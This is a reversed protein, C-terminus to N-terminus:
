LNLEMISHRLSNRRAGLLRPTPVALSGEKGDSDADDSDEEEDYDEGDDDEDREAELGSDVRADDGIGIGLAAAAAGMVRIRDYRQRLDAFMQRAHESSRTECVVVM